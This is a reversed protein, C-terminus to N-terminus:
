ILVVRYSTNQIEIQEKENLGTLKAISDLVARANTRDNNDMCDRYLALYRELHLAKQIDRSEALEYKCSEEAEKIYGSINNDSKGGEFWEYNGAKLNQRLEWKPTGSLLEERIHAIKIARETEDKKKGM